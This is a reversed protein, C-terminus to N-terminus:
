LRDASCIVGSDELNCGSNCGTQGLDFVHAYDQSNLAYRLVSLTGERIHIHPGRHEPQPTPRLALRSPTQQTGTNQSFSLACLQARPTFAFCVHRVCAEREATMARSEFLDEGEEERGVEVCVYVNCQAEGRESVEVVITWRSLAAPDSACGCPGVWSPTKILM